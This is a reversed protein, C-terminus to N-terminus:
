FCGAAPRGAPTVAWEGGPLLPSPAAGQGQASLSAPLPLLSLSLVRPHRVGTPLHGQSSFSHTISHLISFVRVTTEALETQCGGGVEGSLPQRM